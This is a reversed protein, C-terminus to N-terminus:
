AKGLQGDALALQEARVSLIHERMTGAAADPDGDVIARIIRDHENLSAELRGPIQETLHGIRTVHDRLNSILAKIRRNELGDFLIADFEDILQALRKTNGAELASRGAASLSLLRRRSDGALAAAAQRAAAVELLLRLEYIEELDRRSYGTVVAGKFVEVEVLGDRELWALAERIPTKSVGLM